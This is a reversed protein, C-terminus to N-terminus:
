LSPHSGDLKRLRKSEHLRDFRDDDLLVRLGEATAFITSGQLRVGKISASMKDKLYGNSDRGLKDNDPNFIRFEIDAGPNISAFFVADFLSPEMKERRPHNFIDDYITMKRTEVPLLSFSKM